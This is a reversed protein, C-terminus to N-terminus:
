KILYKVHIICPFGQLDQSYMRQQKNMWIFPVEVRVVDLSLVYMDTLVLQNSGFHILRSMFSLRPGSVQAADTKFDMPMMTTRLSLALLCVPSLSSSLARPLWVEQVTEAHKETVEVDTPQRLSTYCTGCGGPAGSCKNSPVCPSIDHQKEAPLRFDQMPCGSATHCQYCTGHVLCKICSLIKFKAIRM